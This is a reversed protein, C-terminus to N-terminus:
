INAKNKKQYYVQYVYLGQTNKGTDFVTHIAKEYAKLFSLSFYIIVRSM